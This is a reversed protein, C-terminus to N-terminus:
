AVSQNLARMLGDLNMGHANAGEEISEFNSAACGICGMGFTDFIKITEPYKTVCDLISMEKTITM